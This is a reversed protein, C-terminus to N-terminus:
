NNSILDLNAKEKISQNLDIYGFDVLKSYIKKVIPGAASGGHGGHEVLVVVVYKPDDYPGYSTIWAHSRHYYDMEEEKKRTKAKQSIGVVQATGTKAAIKVVNDKFIKYATGGPKNAVEYMAERILELNRKEEDSFIDLTDFKVDKNDISKLFHPIIDKGTAIMATYKAMQMPTVLMSGQGISANLTEGNYWPKNYKEKKWLKNPNTGVFENPLDVGTKEGISFKSLYKSIPDIGVLLAGKYYYVDCSEKISKKLDVNSHGYSKWCRFKRDGLEVYGPCTQITDSTIKKSELFALAVGMKIISGPPYLGNVLKNTFPHDPNKIIDNWDKYSIGTVFPNLNYEPFSGAAIIAGTKANMVIAVGSDKGFIEGIAKQLRLDINLKISSSTPKTYSLEKITQNLATVKTKREGAKGQLIDNYYKEVGSKGIFGVLKAISDKKTESLQARGVYGIIHSALDNYPYFRQAAPSIEINQYLKLKAYNPLTTNYDLFDVIKIYEQNYPSDNKNYDKIIETANLDPFLSVILNVDKNLEDKKLHPALSISFGIKNIAIPRDKADLIQGRSPPIQKTKIVNEEAIEEYYENSKISLYYIRIILITWVLIIIGFIVRLRM